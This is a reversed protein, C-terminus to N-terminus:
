LLTPGLFGLNAGVRMVASPLGEAFERWIWALEDGCLTPLGKTRVAGILSM